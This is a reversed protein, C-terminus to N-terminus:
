GWSGVGVRGRARRSARGIQGRVLAWFSDLHRGNTMEHALVHRLTDEREVSASTLYITPRFVGALCPSSLEECLYVPYPCAEVAFPTRTRRLKRFFLVNSVVFWTGMGVMGAWWIYTLLKSLPIKDAYKTVSAGGGDVRAYGFSVSLQTIAYGPERWEAM